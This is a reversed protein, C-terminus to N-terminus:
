AEAMGLTHTLEARYGALEVHEAHILDFVSKLQGVAETLLDAHKGKQEVTALLADAQQNRRAQESASYASWIMSVIAFLLLLVVFFAFGANMTIEGAEISIVAPRM